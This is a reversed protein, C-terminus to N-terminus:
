PAVKLIDRSTIFGARLADTGSIPACDAIRRKETGQCQFVTIGDTRSTRASDFLYVFGAPNDNALAKELLAVDKVRPAMWYMVKGRWQLAPKGQERGPAADSNTPTHLALYTFRGEKGDAFSREVGGVFAIVCASMCFGSAAVKLGREAFMEGLRIATWIDGGPSDKLVVTDIQPNAPLVDRMLAIEDGNIRGSLILQNGAIRHDMALANFTLLM